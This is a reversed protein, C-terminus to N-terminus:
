FFAEDIVFIEDDLLFITDIYEDSGIFNPLLSDTVVVNMDM